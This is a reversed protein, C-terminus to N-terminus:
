RALVTCNASNLAVSTVGSKLQTTQGRTSLQKAPPQTPDFKQVLVRDGIGSAIYRTTSCEQAYIGISLLWVYSLLLSFIKKYRM